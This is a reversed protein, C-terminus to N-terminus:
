LVLVDKVFQTKLIPLCVGSRTHYDRAHFTSQGEQLKTHQEKTLKLESGDSLVYVYRRVRRAKTLEIRHIRNGSGGLSKAVAAWGANHNRGRAPDTFCVLHAVEHPLTDEVMDAYAKAIAEQNFRLILGGARLIAQGASNGKLDFRVTTSQIQPLDYRTAAEDLKKRVEAHFADVGTM